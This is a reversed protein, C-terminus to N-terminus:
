LLFQGTLKTNCEDGQEHKRPSYEYSDNMEFYLQLKNM